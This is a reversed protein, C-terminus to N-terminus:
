HTHTVGWAPLPDPYGVWQGQGAAIEADTLLASNLLERTRVQDLRVGIFVIEQGPEVETTAWYQAPEIVLNPGAQSWIAAVDPRSAIWCFGKSRLLGHLGEIAQQLRQPHFPRAARFTMSSIGYEETEPTHGNAIEEDWGPTEAALDPDFLGTDLVTDLPVVGHSTRAIQATPNLRRLVTEVTAAATASVLDTKNLLIVDAFEVQDTLLDSISRGDGEGAALDRQALAEGRVLEPLFTSADVVTVLTDLRAV